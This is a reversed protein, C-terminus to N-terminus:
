TTAGVTIKFNTGLNLTSLDGVNEMDIIASAICKSDDFIESEESLKNIITVTKPRRDQNFNLVAAGSLNVAALTGVSNYNLTGDFVNLVTHAGAHITTSGATQEFSTTDSNIDLEGGSKIVNAVTVGDGLYVTTDDVASDFFAQRLTAITSIETPYFAVGLSGRNINVVNSAHTGLLLIAPVNDEEGTGSDTILVTSQAPGLDIKIRGSGDGEKAGIFLETAGIMLYQDRYEFYTTTADADTRPLGVFGTYTQEIHLAALTVASQDLGYLISVDSDTLYVM